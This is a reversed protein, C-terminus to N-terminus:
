KKLMQMSVRFGEKRGEWPAPFPSLTMVIDIWLGWVRLSQMSSLVLAVAFNGVWGPVLQKTCRLLCDSVPLYVCPSVTCVSLLYILFPSSHFIIPVVWFHFLVDLSPMHRCPTTNSHRCTHKCGEVPTWGQQSCTATSLQRYESLRRSVWWSQSPCLSCLIVPGSTKGLCVRLACVYACFLWKM